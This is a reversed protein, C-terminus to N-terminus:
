AGPRIRALLVYADPDRRTVTQIRRRTAPDRLHYPPVFYTWRMTTVPQRAVVRWDTTLDDIRIVPDPTPTM